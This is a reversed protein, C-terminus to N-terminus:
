FKSKFTLSGSMSDYDSRLDANLDLSVTSDDSVHDVGFGLQLSAKEPEAASTTFASGGGTFTSSVSAADNSLDYGAMINVRPITVSDGDVIHQTFEAGARATLVDHSSSAVILNLNGAGTETYGDNDINTYSADVKPTMTWAGTNSSAFAHGVKASFINSDYKGSATGTLATRKTDNDGSAYGVMWDTAKGYTGYAAVQVATTDTHSSSASKGDVDTDSYSVSLGMLDGSKDTEWGLALGNSDADYGDITGVKDQTASSGFIQAWVVAENADDGTSVGSQNGLANFAVRTASQRGSIVNNVGGVAALAAGTAAGADPQSKEAADLTQTSTLSALANFETANAAATASALANVLATNNQGTVGDVATKHVVKIDLDEAVTGTTDHQIDIMATDVLAVRGSAIMATYTHTGGPAVVTAASDIVKITAGNAIPLSDSALGVNLASGAVFTVVGDASIVDMTDPDFDATKKINLINTTANKGISTTNSIAITNGASITTASALGINVSGDATLSLTKTTGTLLTTLTGDIAIAGTDSADVATFVVDNAGTVGITGDIDINGDTIASVAVTNDASSVNLTGNIDLGVTGNTDDTMFSINKSINATANANVKFLGIDNTAGIASSFTVNSLLTADGVLIQGDEDAVGDITGSVTKSIGNLQLKGGVATTGPAADLLIADIYLNATTAVANNADGDVLLKGMKVDSTGIDGSFNVAGAANSITILGKGTTATTIASSITTTGTGATVTLGDDVEADNIVISAIDITIDGNAAAGEISTTVDAAINLTGAGTLKATEINITDATALTTGSAVSVEDVGTSMSTALTVTNAGGIISVKNTDAANGGSIAGTVSFSAGTADFIATNTDAATAGAGLVIASAVAAKFTASSTTTNDADAGEVGIVIGNTTSVAADFTAVSGTSGSGVTITDVKNTGGIIGTFTVGGSTNAIIIDGEAAADGDILGSITQATSGDFTLTTADGTAGDADLIINTFKVDKKFNAAVEGNTADMTLTITDVYVDGDFDGTTAVGSAGSINLAKLRDDSTGINSAFTATKDNATTVLIAGEGDSSATIAGTITQDDAGLAKLTATGTNDDLSISSFTANAKVEVIATSGSVLNGTIALASDSTVAGTFIAKADGGAGTSGAGATVEVNGGTITTVGSITLTSNGGAGNAAGVGGTLTIGSAGITAEGAITASSAGGADGSAGAGGTITLGTSDFKDSTFDGFTVGVSSGIAAATTAAGGEITIASMTTDGAVTVSSTTALTNVGNIVLSGGRTLTSATTGGVDGGIAVTLSDAGIIDSTLTVDGLELTLTKATAIDVAGTVVLTDDDAAATIDLVYLTADEDIDIDAVTIDAADLKVYGYDITGATLAANTIGDTSNIANNAAAETGGTIEVSYAGGSMAMTGAVALALLSKKMVPMATTIQLEKKNM